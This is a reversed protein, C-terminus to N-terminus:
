AGYSKYYSTHLHAAEDDAMGLGVFYAHILEQM